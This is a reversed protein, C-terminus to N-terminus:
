HLFIKQWILFCVSLCEHTLTTLKSLEEIKELLLLYLNVYSKVDFPMEFGKNTMINEAVAM